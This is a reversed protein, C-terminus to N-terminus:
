SRRIYKTTQFADRFTYIGPEGRTAIFKIYNNRDNEVFTYLEQLNKFIYDTLKYTTNFTADKNANMVIVYKYGIIRNTQDYMETVMNVSSILEINIAVSNKTFRVLIM